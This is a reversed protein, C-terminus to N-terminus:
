LLDCFDIAIVACGASQADRDTGEPRDFQDRSSFHGLAANVLRQCGDCISLDKAPVPQRDHVVVNM